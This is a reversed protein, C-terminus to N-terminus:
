YRKKGIAYGILGAIILTGIAVEGAPNAKRMKSRMYRPDDELKKILAKRKAVTNLKKSNIPFRFGLEKIRAGLKAFESKRKAM